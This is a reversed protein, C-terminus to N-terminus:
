QLKCRKNQKQMCVALTKRIQNPTAQLARQTVIFIWDGSELQEQNLRFWERIIRKLRNRNVAFRVQRKSITIGIRPHPQQKAQVYCYFYPSSFKYGERRTAQFEYPKKVRASNSFLKKFNHM